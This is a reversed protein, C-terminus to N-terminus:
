HCPVLVRSLGTTGSNNRCVTLGALVSTRRRASGSAAEGHGPNAMAHVEDASSARTRTFDPKHPRLHLLSGLDSGLNRLAAGSSGGLEGHSGQCAGGPPHRPSLCRQPRQQHLADPFTRSCRRTTARRWSQSSSEVGPQGPARVFRAAPYSAPSCWRGVPPAGPLLLEVIRAEAGPNYAATTTASRLAVNGDVDAPRGPVSRQADNMSNVLLFPDHAPHEINGKCDM